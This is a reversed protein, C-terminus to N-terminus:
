NFVARRITDILGTSVGNDCKDINIPITDYLDSAMIAYHYEPTIAQITGDAKSYVILDIGVNLMLKTCQFCPISDVLEGTVADCGAIYITSHLADKGAQIIANCESHVSWCKSYDCGQSINNSKRYCTGRQICDVQKRPAGNYGTAIIYNREDVIIAGYKRVLCTSQFATRM